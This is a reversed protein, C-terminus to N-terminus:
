KSKAVSGKINLVLKITKFFILLDLFNSFNKIYYLDYSLKNYTDDLSAGYPYNVQAWGSLGPRFNYRFFYNPIRNDLEKEISPREPRPGILSMDGKIVNIIQPLEDIRVKRILKGINTVRKDAKKSWQPGYKEADTKMTRLKYVTFEKGGKGTRIQSYFIPGFDELYILISICIILPFSTFFLILCVLIDGIRKIRLQISKKQYNFIGRVIDKENVIKPILRQLYKETWELVTYIQFGEQIKKNIFKIKEQDEININEIIFNNSNIEYKKYESLQYIFVNKLKARILNEQLLDFTDKCGIYIYIKKYNIEKFMVRNFINIILDSIIVFGFLYLIFKNSLFFLKNNLILFISITFFYTLISKRYIKTNLLNDNENLYSYRGFVYSILVWLLGIFFIYVHSLIFESNINKLSISIATIVFLLDILEAVFINKRSQFWPFRKNFTM